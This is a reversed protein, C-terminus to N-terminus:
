KIFVGIKDNIQLDFYFQEAQILKNYFPIWEINNNHISSSDIGISNGNSSINKELTIQIKKLYDYGKQFQFTGLYDFFVGEDM